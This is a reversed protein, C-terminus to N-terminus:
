LIKTYMDAWYKLQIFELSQQLDLQKALRFIMLLM